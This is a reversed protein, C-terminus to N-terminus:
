VPDAPELVTLDESRQKKLDAAPAGPSASSKRKQPITPGHGSADVPIFEVGEASAAKSLEAIVLSVNVVTNFCVYASTDNIWKLQNPVASEHATFFSMIAKFDWEKPFTMVMINPRKPAVNEQALDIFPVDFSQMMNVKHMLKDVHESSLDVPGIPIPGDELGRLLRLFSFGTMYADYAADHAQETQQIDKHVAIAPQRFRGSQATTFVNGLHTKDFVTQYKDHKALLKNDVLRPMSQVVLKQFEPFEEPLKCHFQRLSHIVDLMMNHGVILKGSDMMAKFVLSVGVANEIAEKDKEEALKDAATKPDGVLRVCRIFRENKENQESHMHLGPFADKQQFILKRQFGNCPPLDLMLGGDGSQFATMRSVVGDM